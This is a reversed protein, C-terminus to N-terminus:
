LPTSRYAHREDDVKFQRFVLKIMQLRMNYERNGHQQMYTIVQERRVADRLEQIHRMEEQHLFEFHAAERADLAERSTFIVNIYGATPAPKGGFGRGCRAM